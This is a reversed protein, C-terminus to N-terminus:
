ISGQDEKPIHVGKDPNSSEKRERKPKSPGAEDATRKHKREDPSSKKENKGVPLDAARDRRIM